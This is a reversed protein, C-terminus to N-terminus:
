WRGARWGVARFWQPNKGLTAHLVQDLPRDVSWDVIQIGAPRLRRFTAQREIRAIRAAFQLAPPPHHGMGVLAQYEFTVPDPSVVLVQYGRARLRVLPPPDDSCLPTILVIQSQAPFFRTPLYDLSNFIMSEGTEARALAQLIREWQVKGYGPFTRALFGGYILLGVRNGESLFVDALSATARIAHEFLSHSGLRVDSRVRADLILGVDALRERQFQNTFLMQPDRASARWNIWRLPDGSQYERIGFFDIGAGGLRAPVPGAFGHTRLPRIAIHRLRTVEPLVWLSAGSRYVMERGVLGLADRVTVHVAEFDYGGRSGRVTYTLDVTAGKDLTAILEPAGGVVVLGPPICDAIKVNELRPGANCITLTVPVITGEAVREMGLSRSFSLAPDPPMYLFAAGLFFAVPIALAIFVGNLTALGLMFLSFAVFGLWIVRKM